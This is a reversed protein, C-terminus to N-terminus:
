PGEMDTLPAPNQFVTADGDYKAQTKKAAALAMNKHLSVIEPPTLVGPAEPAVVIDLGFIVAIISVIISQWVTDGDIVADDYASQFTSQMWGKVKPGINEAINSLIDIAIPLVVSLLYARITLWM